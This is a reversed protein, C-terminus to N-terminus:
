IKTQFKLYFETNLKNTYIINQILNNVNFFFNYKRTLYKVTSFNFMEINIDYVSYLDINQCMNNLKYINNKYLYYLLDDGYNENNIIYIKKKKETLEKIISYYDNTKELFEYENIIIFNYNNNVIKSFIENKYQEYHMLLEVIINNNM